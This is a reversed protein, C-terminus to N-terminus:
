AIHPVVYAQVIAKLVECTFYRGFRYLSLMITNCKQIVHSIHEEIVGIFQIAKLASNFLKEVM